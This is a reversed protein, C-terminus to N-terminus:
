YNIVTENSPIMQGLLKVSGIKYEASLINIKADVFLFYHTSIIQCKNM